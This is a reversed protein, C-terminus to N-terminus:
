IENRRPSLNRSKVTDPSDIESAKKSAVPSLGLGDIFSSNKVSRQGSKIPFSSSMNSSKITANALQKDLTRSALEALAFPAKRSKLVLKSQRKAQEQNLRNGVHYTTFDHDYKTYLRKGFDQIEDPEEKNEDEYAANAAVTSVSSTKTNMKNTPVLPFEQMSDTM